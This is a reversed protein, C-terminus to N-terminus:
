STSLRRRRGRRIQELAAASGAAIFAMDDRCALLQFGRGIIGFAPKGSTPPTRAAIQELV